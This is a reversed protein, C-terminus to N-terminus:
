TRGSCRAPPSFAKPMGDGPPRPPTAGPPCSRPAASTGEWRTPGATTWGCGPSSGGASTRTAAARSGTAIRLSTRATSAYRELREGEWNEWYWAALEYADEQAQTAWLEEAMQQLYEETLM